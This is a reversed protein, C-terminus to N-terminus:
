INWGAASCVESSKMYLQFKQWHDYIYNRGHIKYWVPTYGIYMIGLFISEAPYKVFQELLDLYPSCFLASFDRYSRMLRNWIGTSHPNHHALIHVYNCCVSQMNSYISLPSVCSALFLRAWFSKMCPDVLILDSRDSWLMCSYNEYYIMRSSMTNMKVAFFDSLIIVAHLTEVNLHPLM